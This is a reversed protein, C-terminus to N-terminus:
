ASRSARAPSGRPSSWSRRRRRRVTTVSRSWRRPSTTSTALLRAMVNAIQAISTAAEDATLNTTEGLDIMVKTFGAIAERKVGLQGAAEAVAAIERHSAPLTKALERLEGELAAMQRANGETTKTVGAWASEWQVAARVSLAVGAAMAAGAAVAARGVQEQAAVRRRSSQEAEAAAQKEYRNRMQTVHAVSATQRTEIRKLEREFVKASQEASKLKGQFGSIDADIRAMLNRQQSSM